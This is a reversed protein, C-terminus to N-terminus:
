SVKNLAAFGVSNPSDLVLQASHRLLMGAYVIDGGGAIINFASLYFIITNGTIMAIAFLGFGLILTPLLVAIIARLKRMPKKAHCYPSLTSWDMGFSVDDKWRVGSMFWFAFGHLGEHVIISIAVLVVFILLSLAFGVFHLWPHSIVDAEIISGAVADYHLSFIIYGAIVIVGAISCGIAIVKKFSISYESIEYGDGRYQVLANSYRQINDEKTSKAKKM